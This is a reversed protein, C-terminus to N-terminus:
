ERTGDQESLGKDNMPETVRLGSAQLNLIYWSNQTQKQLHHPKKTHTSHPHYFYPSQRGNEQQGLPKPNPQM